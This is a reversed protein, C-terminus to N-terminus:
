FGRLYRVLWLLGPMSVLLTGAALLAVVLESSLGLGVIRNLAVVAFCTAVIALVAQAQARDSLASINPHARDLRYLIAAALWDVIVLVVLAVSIVDLWKM